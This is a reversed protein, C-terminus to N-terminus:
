TQKSPRKPANSARRNHKSHPPQTPPQTPTPHLPPHLPRHTPPSRVEINLKAENVNKAPLQRLLMSLQRLTRKGGGKGLAQLFCDRAAQWDKKKWFCHGLANWGEVHSPELKVAKTLAAEAESNHESYVDLAKGKLYAVRARARNSNGEGYAELQRLVKNSAEKLMEQIPPHTPPHALSLTPHPLHSSRRSSLVYVTGKREVRNVGSWAVWGGVRRKRVKKEAKDATFFFDHIEHLADLLRTAEQLEPPDEEAPSSSASSSSASSSSPTETENISNNQNEEGTKLTLKSLAAAPPMPLLTSASAMPTPTHTHPTGTGRGKELFRTKNSSPLLFPTSPHHAQVPQSGARSRQASAVGPTERHTHHTSPPHTPATTTPPPCLRERKGNESASSNQKAAAVAPRSLWRKTMRKVGGM